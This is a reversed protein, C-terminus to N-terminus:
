LSTFPPRLPEMVASIGLHLTSFIGTFVWTFVSQHIEEQFQEGQEQWKGDPPSFSCLLSYQNLTHRETLLVGAAEMDQAMWDRALDGSWARRASRTTAWSRREM